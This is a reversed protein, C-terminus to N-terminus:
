SLKKRASRSSKAMELINRPVQVRRVQETGEERADVFVDDDQRNTPDSVLELKKGYLKVKHKKAYGYRQVLEGLNETKGM